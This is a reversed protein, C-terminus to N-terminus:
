PLGVADAAVVRVTRPGLVNVVVVESGKPLPQASWALYAESGGRVSLVVEGSGLAGRTPVVVVGEAGVLLVDRM